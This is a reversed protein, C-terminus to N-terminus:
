DDSVDAFIWDAYYTRQDHNLYYRDHAENAALMREVAGRKAVRLVALAVAEWTLRVGGWDTKWNNWVESAAEACEDVLTRAPPSDLAIVADAVKLWAEQVTPLQEDWNDFHSGTATTGFAARAIAERRSTSDPKPLDSM